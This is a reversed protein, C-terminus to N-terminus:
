PQPPAPLRYEPAGTEAAPTAETAADGEAELDADRSSASTTRGPTEEGARGTSKLVLPRHPSLPFAPPTAAPAPRAYSEATPAALADDKRCYIVGVVIVLGVGVVLGLKADKPM